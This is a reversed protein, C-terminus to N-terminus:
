KEQNSRKEIHEVEVQHRAAWGAKWGLKWAGYLLASLILVSIFLPGAVAMWCLPDKWSWNYLSM